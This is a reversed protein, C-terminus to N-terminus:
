EKVRATVRMPVLAYKGFSKMQSLYARYQERAQPRFGSDWFADALNLKAVVRSPFKSVIATLVPTADEPRGEAILFYAIDNIAEVNTADVYSVLEDIAYQPFARLYQRVQQPNKRISLFGNLESVVEARVNSDAEYQRNGGAGLRGCGTVRAVQLSRVPVGGPVDERQGTIERVLCWDQVGVNWEYVERFVQGGQSPCSGDVIMQKTQKVAYMAMVSCEDFKEVFYSLARKRTPSYYEVAIGNEVDRFSFVGPIGVGEFDGSLVSAGAANAVTTAVCGVWFILILRGIRRRM